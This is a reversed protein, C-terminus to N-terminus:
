DADSETDVDSGGSLLHGPVAYAAFNMGSLVAVTRAVEVALAAHIQDLLLQTALAATPPAAKAPTIHYLAHM